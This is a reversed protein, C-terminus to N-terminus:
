DSTNFKRLCSRFINRFHVKWTGSTITQPILSTNQSGYSLNRAIFTMPLLQIKWFWDEFDGWQVINLQLWLTKASRALIMELTGSITTQPMLSTNRFRKFFTQAIFTMPLLQIKSNALRTSSTFLVLEKLDVLRGISNFSADCGFTSSKPNPNKVLMVLLFINLIKLYRLAERM